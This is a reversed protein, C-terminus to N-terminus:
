FYICTIGRPQPPLRSQISSCRGDTDAAARHSLLFFNFAIHLGSQLSQHAAPSPPKSCLRAPPLPQGRCHGTTREAGAGHACPPNTRELNLGHISFPKSHPKSAGLHGRGGDAGAAALGWSVIDSRSCNGVELSLHHREGDLHRKGHRARAQILERKSLEVEGRHIQWCIEDRQLIQLGTQSTCSSLM